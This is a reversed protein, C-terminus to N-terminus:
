RSRQHDIGCALLVAGRVEDDPEHLAGALEAGTAGPFTLATVRAM